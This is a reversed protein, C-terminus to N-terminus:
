PSRMSMLPDAFAVTSEIPLRAVTVHSERAERRLAPLMRLAAAALPPLGKEYRVAEAQFYRYRALASAAGAYDGREFAILAGGHHDRLVRWFRVAGAEPSEYAGMPRLMEGHRSAFPWLARRARPSEAVINGFNFNYLSKGSDTEFASLAYAGAIREPSGERGFVMSHGRVLAKLMEKPLMLTRLRPVVNGSTVGERNGGTREELASGAPDVTTSTEGPALPNTESASARPPGADFGFAEADVPREDRTPALCGFLGAVLVCLARTSRQLNFASRTEM